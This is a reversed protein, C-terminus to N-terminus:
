AKRGKKHARARVTKDLMCLTHRTGYVAKRAHARTVRLACHTIVHSVNTTHVVNRWGRTSMLHASQSHTAPLSPLALQTHRCACHPMVLAVVYVCGTAGGRGGGIYKEREWVYVCNWQFHRTPMGVVQPCYTATFMLNSHASVRHHLRYTVGYM